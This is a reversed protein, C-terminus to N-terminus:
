AAIETTAAPAAPLRVRFTSGLGPTSEVEITGGLQDVLQRVIYLGLGLGSYSRADSSDVQRFMEFIYPLHEAAIGIGTDRVTVAVSDAGRTCDVAVEGAPTFKLANGILNKVILKLKRRDTRLVTEGVPAWRLAVGSARPLADFETDLEEWLAALQLPEIQPVDKGGALRSVNLTAEIMELLELSSQRVRGLLAHQDKTLADDELIDTYGLIVNLPTRLEHSMTSVFESKLRGARELEEVLTANTLAMSALQGIGRAIREQTPTFHDRDAAYGASHTGVLEQGRRIAICLTARAGYHELVSAVVTYTPDNRTVQALGDESLRRFLPAESDGPLRLTQMSHWQEDNLGFGAIATYVGEDPKRLWTTSFDCDLVEATIRCLRELLVPTELSSILECGVRALAASTAAEAAREEEIRTRETIDAVFGIMRVIEGQEDLVFHGKDEVLVYTGDKRRLRFRKHFDTKERLVRQVEDEFAAVDDPHVLAIWRTLDGALEEATRGLMAEVAGGYRVENTRPDWDYLLQGSALIAAEYRNRWEASASLAEELQALSEGWRRRYLITVLGTIAGSTIGGGLMVAVSVLPIAPPPVIALVIAHGVVLVPVVLLLDLTAQLFVLPCFTALASIGVEAAHNGLMGDVYAAQLPLLLALGITYARTLTWAARRGALWVGLAAYLCILVRLWFFGPAQRYRAVAIIAYAVFFIACAIRM